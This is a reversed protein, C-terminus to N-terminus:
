KFMENMLPFQDKDVDGKITELHHKDEENACLDPLLLLTEALINCQDPHNKRLVYELVQMRSPVAMGM